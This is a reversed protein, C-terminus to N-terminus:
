QRAAAPCPQPVVLSPLSSVLCAPVSLACSLGAPSQQGPEAARGQVAIHLLRHCPLSAASRGGPHGRPRLPHHVPLAACAGQLPALRIARAFRALVFAHLRAAVRLM